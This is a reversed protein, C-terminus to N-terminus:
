RHGAASSGLTLSMATTWVGVIVFMGVYSILQYGAFLLGLSLVYLGGLLLSITGHQKDGQYTAGSGYLLLGLPFCLLIGIVAWAGARTGATAM